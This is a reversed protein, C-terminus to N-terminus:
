IRSGRREEEWSPPRAPTRAAAFTWNWRGMLRMLAPVLLLRIVTADLLVGAVLGVGFQRLPAVHSTAFGAFIVVMVLASATVVCGVLLLGTRVAHRNDGTRLWEERMRTVMFIEYDTSIGFLAAGLLLPVWAEIREGHGFGLFSGWGFQFTLVVVGCAAAVSLLAMAIAKIPLLVSHLMLALLFYMVIVIVLGFLVANAGVAHVFDYDVAAPGGVDVPRRGFHAAPVYDSRLRDVLAENARANGEAAVVRIRTFRGSGDVLGLARARKARGARPLAVPAQVATVDPDRALMAILRREPRLTAPGAAAGPRGGDILVEYAALTSHSQAVQAAGGPRAPLHARRLFEASGGTVSLSLVPLALAVMLAGAALAVRGPRRMVLDALRTPLSPGPRKRRRRPPKVRLSELRPGLLELLAPLLTVSALVSVLPIGVTAVGLGSFFPIPMFALPALGAAVILGSIILSHGATRATRARAPAGPGDGRAAEERYRALYLMSYDVALGIGVLSVVSTAYVPIPVLWSELWILGVAVAITAAAFLLPLAVAPLSGFLLVLIIATVPLAVAEARRLDHEITSSLEAAIVPFGTVKVRAHTFTVPELAREVAPVRARSAAPSHESPLRVYSIRPSVSQLPTPRAEAAVAARRTAGRVTRVFSPSAWQGPAAEVLVLLSGSVSEGFHSRLAASVAQSESGPVEISSTLRSGLGAWALLGAAAALLWLALVAFTRARVRRGGGSEGSTGEASGM